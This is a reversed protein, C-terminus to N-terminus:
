RQGLPGAPSARCAYAVPAISSTGGATADLSYDNMTFTEDKAGTSCIEWGCDIEGLAM